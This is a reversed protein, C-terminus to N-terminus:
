NKCASAAKYYSFVSGSAATSISPHPMLVDSVPAQCPVPPEPTPKDNLAPAPIVADTSVPTSLVVNTSPAEVVTPVWVKCADCYSPKWSYVIEILAVEGNLDLKLETKLPKSFDVQVCVNVDDSKFIQSCDQDAHLQTGGVHWPGKLLARAYAAETPLQILFLGDKYPSVSILGDRGWLKNLIAHILGIKPATGVFQGILCLKYKKRGLELLESPISLCDSNFIPEVFSLQPTTRSAVKSWTPASPAVSVGSIPVPVSNGVPVSGLPVSAEKFGPSNLILPASVATPSPPRSTSGIPVSNTVSPLIQAEPDDLVSAFSVPQQGSVISKGKLKQVSSSSPNPFVLSGLDMVLSSKERVLGSEDLLPALVM